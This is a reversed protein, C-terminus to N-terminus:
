PSGVTGDNKPSLDLHGGELPAALGAALPLGQLQPSAGTVKGGVVCEVAGGIRGADRSPRAFLYGDYPHDVRARADGSRFSRRIRSCSVIARRKGGGSVRLEGGMRQTGALCGSNKPYWKPYWLGRKAGLERVGFLRLGLYKRSERGTLRTPRSGVVTKFAEDTVTM